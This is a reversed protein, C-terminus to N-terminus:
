QRLSISQPNEPVLDRWIFVNEKVVASVSAFGPTHILVTRTGDPVLGIVLRRGSPAYRSPEFLSATFVGHTISRTITSCFQGVYEKQQQTLLCLHARGALAWVRGTSRLRQALAWNSGYVPSRLIQRIGMPLGEVPSRFISFNTQLRRPLLHIIPAWRDDEKKERGAPRDKATHSLSASSDAHLLIAATSVGLVVAIAVLAKFSSLTSLLM